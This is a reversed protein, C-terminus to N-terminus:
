CQLKKILLGDQLHELVIPQNKHVVPIDHRHNKKFAPDFNM